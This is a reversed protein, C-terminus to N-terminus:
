ASPTRVSRTASIGLCAAALYRCWELVSRDNISYLITSASRRRQVLGERFLVQLHKSITSPQSQLSAAIRGVPLEARGLRDIIRVRTVDSLARARGVIRRMQEDSLRTM